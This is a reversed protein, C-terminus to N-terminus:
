SECKGCSSRGGSPESAGKGASIGNEEKGNWHKEMANCPESKCAKGSCETGLVQYM